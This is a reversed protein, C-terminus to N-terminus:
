LLLFLNYLCLFELKSIHTFVSSNTLLQFSFTPILCIFMFLCFCLSFHPCCHCVNRLISLIFTCKVLYKFGFHMYFFITVYFVSFITYFMCIYTYIFIWNKNNILKKQKTKKQTSDFLWRISQTQYFGPLELHPLEDLSIKVDLIIGSGQLMKSTQKKSLISM